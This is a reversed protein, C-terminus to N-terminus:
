AALLKLSGNEVYVNPRNPVPTASANAILAPAQMTGVKDKIADFVQPTCVAHTGTVFQSTQTTHWETQGEEIVSKDEISLLFPSVGTTFYIYM